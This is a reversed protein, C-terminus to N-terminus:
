IINDQTQHNTTSQKTLRKFLSYLYNDPSTVEYSYSTMEYGDFNWEIFKHMLQKVISFM